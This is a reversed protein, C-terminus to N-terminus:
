FMKHLQKKIEKNQKKIDEGNIDKGILKNTFSCGDHYGKEYLNESVAKQKKLMNYTLNVKIITSSFEYLCFLLLFILILYLKNKGM